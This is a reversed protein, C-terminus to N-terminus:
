SLSSQILGERAVPRLQCMDAIHLSHQELDAHAFNIFKTTNYFYQEYETTNNTSETAIEIINSTGSKSFTKIM